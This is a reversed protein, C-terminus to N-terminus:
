VCLLFSILLTSFLVESISRTKILSIGFNKCFPNISPVKGSLSDLAIHSIVGLSFFFISYSILLRYDSFLHSIIISSVSDVKGANVYRLIDPEVTVAIVAVIVYPVFWHFLKRHIKGFIYARVYQNVFDNKKRKPLLALEIYDPFISGLGTLICLM